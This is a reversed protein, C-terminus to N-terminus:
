YPPHRHLGLKAMRSELTTPPLGLIEAAGGAGRVRWHTFELVRQIHEREVEALTALPQPAPLPISGPLDIVLRPGSVLIMAREVVNRLERVNGPWSYHQLARLSSKTIAEITKGMARSFEDVFSWVLAPIDERRDRLPPATIPFVNLRYYLDERFRGEAVAKALNRNTAAIIRVNVQIRKPSGLREIEKEQLVRLLKAQSELPLESIEDLFITSGDAMEFRGIQRALAGTYAGKERGFLESEILAAPIAACNVRVMVRNHRPSLEHIATAFLEKGTGTEGLLLVSSPTSAVQEVQALVQLIALSQGVIRGHGRNSKVEKQLYLNNQQLQAQLRGVEELANRLHIENNWRETIDLSASMLRAPQGATDLHCSGIVHLWRVTGDAHVVRYEGRYEGGGRLANWVSGEVPIRDDPHLCAMFQEFNLPEDPGIGYLVRAQESAWIDDRPIDWLWLGVSAVTAALRFREESAQLAQDVHQRALANAFVDAILRLGRVALKSWEREGHALSCGVGGIVHGGAILPVVVGSSIQRSAFLQREKEAETPLDALRVMVFPQGSLLTRFLFPAATALSPVLPFTEVGPVAFAHTVVLDQGDESLRGLTARDARLAEVLCRLANEIAQDVRDSPLNAFCASLDALLAEFRLRDELEAQLDASFSNMPNSLWYFCEAYFTPFPIPNTM